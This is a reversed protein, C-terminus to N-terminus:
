SIFDVEQFTEISLLAEQTELMIGFQIHSTDEMEKQIELIWNKIYNFESSTYIMPFMIKITNYHNAKILAKIQTKFLEPNDLYNAMGKRSSKIYSLQKDDGIDFTRFCIPKHHMAEVAESYIEYQEEFTLPRDSNMFIMETRYLGVGDFGYQNVHDLESNDSINALFQFSGHEIAKYTELSLKHIIANYDDLEKELPSSIILQKRTDLIITQGDEVEVDSVMYPINFQRCLIAGHSTYGGTRTIIGLLNKKNQILFSPYLEEAVLIFGKKPHKIKKGLLNKLIREKIDSLDMAREKLYSSTASLLLNMYEQMVKSVSQEASLGTDIAENARSQLVPDSLLLIQMSIYDENEKNQKKLVELENRSDILAKKLKDKEITPEQNSHNPNQYNLIYAKGIAVGESLVKGSFCSM